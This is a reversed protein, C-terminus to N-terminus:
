RRESSVIRKIVDDILAGTGSYNEPVSKAFFDVGNILLSVADVLLDSAVAKTPIEQASELASRQEYLNVFKKQMDHMRTVWGALNLATLDAPASGTKLDAFLANMLSTQIHHGEDYLQNGHKEIIALLRKAAEQELIVWDKYSLGELYKRFGIFSRDRATDADNVQKTLEQKRSAGIALTAQEKPHDLAQLAAAFHPDEGHRDRVIKECQVTLEAISEISLLSFPINSSNM